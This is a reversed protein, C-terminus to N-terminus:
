TYIIIFSSLVIHLRAIVDCTRLFWKSAACTRRTQLRRQARSRADVEKMMGAVKADVVKVVGAMRETREIMREELM